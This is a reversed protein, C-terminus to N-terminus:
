NLLKEFMKQEQHYRRVRDISTRLAGIVLPDVRELAERMEDRKVELERAHEIDTGDFKNTLEVLAADGDQRVFDLIDQVVAKVSSVNNHPLSLLKELSERFDRSRTDLIPIM